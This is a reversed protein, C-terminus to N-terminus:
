IGRIILNIYVNLIVGFIALGLAVCLAFKIRPFTGPTLFKEGFELIKM